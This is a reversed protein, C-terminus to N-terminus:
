STQNDLLNLFSVFIQFRVVVVELRVKKYSGLNENIEKRNNAVLLLAALTPAIFRVSSKCCIKFKEVMMKPLDICSPAIYPQVRLEPLYNQLLLIENSYKSGSM